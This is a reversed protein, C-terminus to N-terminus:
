GVWWKMEHADIQESLVEAEYAIDENPALCKSRAEDFFLMSIRSSPLMFEGETYKGDLYDKFYQHSLDELTM